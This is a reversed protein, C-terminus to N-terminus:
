TRAFELDLQALYLSFSQLIQKQAAYPAIHFCVCYNQKM